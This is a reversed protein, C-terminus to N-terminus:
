KEKAPIVVKGGTVSEIDEVILDFPLVYGDGSAIESGFLLGVISGTSSDLVLSGSDGHSCFKGAESPARVVWVTIQKGYPNSEGGNTKRLININTQIANVRGDTWGTTRGKKTVEAGAQLGGEEWHDIGEGRLGHINDKTSTQVIRNEISRRDALQILAWDMGWELDNKIVTRYGSSAVVHGLLRDSSAIQKKEAEERAIDGLVTRLVGAKSHDGLDVKQQLGMKGITGDGQVKENLSSIRTDIAKMREKTDADGPSTM